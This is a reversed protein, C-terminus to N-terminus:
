RKYSLMWEYINKGDEKYAPDMTRTWCDHNLKAQGHDFVTFKPAIVPNLGNLRNIYSVAESYPWAGDDKNHVHWIPLKASTMAICKADLSANIEPLGAMSAIAAITTPTTAAYNSLMRAGLSFGLLYIRSTDIRYTSKIHAVLAAVDANTPMKVFQPIITVFSYNTTGVRFSPPFTKNKLLKATGESLVTDLYTKGDGYQGGGHFFILLPYKTTTQDYKAPLAQIYGKVNTSINQSVPSLVAPQTEVTDPNGKDPGDGSSSKRCSSIFGVFIITFAVLSSTKFM